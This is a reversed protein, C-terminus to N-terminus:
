RGQSGDRKHTQNQESQSQEESIKTYDISNRYAGMSERYSESSNTKLPKDENSQGAPLAKTKNKSFISKIKDFLGAFIGKSKNKNNELEVQRESIAEEILANPMNYQMDILTFNDIKDNFLEKLIFKMEDKRSSYHVSPFNRMSEFKAKIEQLDEISKDGIIKKVKDKMDMIELIKSKDYWDIDYKSDIENKKNSNWQRGEEVEKRMQEISLETYKAGRKLTLTSKALLQLEDELIMRSDLIEQPLPEDTNDRFNGFKYFSSDEKNEALKKNIM